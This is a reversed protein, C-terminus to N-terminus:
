AEGEQAPRILQKAWEVVQEAVRLAEATEEESIEAWYGPYRTEVAYTTLLGAEQVAEPLSLGGEKALRLLEELDHTFPFEMRQFLLTAKLAKEAAQQAHFCIQERRVGRDKSALRALRLDSVASELWQEPSGPARRRKRASM